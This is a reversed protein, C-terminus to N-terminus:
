CQSSDRMATPWAAQTHTSTHTVEMADRSLGSFGALEREDVTMLVHQLIHGFEFLTKVEHFDLVAQRTVDGRDFDCILSGIPLRVLPPSTPDAAPNAVVGRMVLPQAWCGPQKGERSFLDCYFGGVLREQGTKADKKFVDYYGICQAADTAWTDTQKGPGM